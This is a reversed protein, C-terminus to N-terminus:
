LYYSAARSHPVLDTVGFWCSPGRVVSILKETCWGDKDRWKPWRRYTWSWHGHRRHSRCLLEHALACVHGSLSTSYVIACFREGGVPFGVVRCISTKRFDKTGFGARGQGSSMICYLRVKLSQLSNTTKAQIGSPICKENLQLFILTISKPTGDWVGALSSWLIHYICQVTKRFTGM